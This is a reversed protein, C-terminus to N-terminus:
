IVIWVADIQLVQLVFIDGMNTIRRVKPYVHHPFIVSWTAM